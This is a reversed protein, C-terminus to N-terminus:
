MDWCEQLFRITNSRKIGGWPLWNSGLSFHETYGPRSTMEKLKIHWMVINLSNLKQGGACWIGVGPVHGLRSFSFGTQYRNYIENTLLCM